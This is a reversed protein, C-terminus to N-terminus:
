PSVQDTDRALLISNILNNRLSPTAEEVFRATQAPTQRWLAGRIVLVGLAGAWLTLCSLGLAWRLATPPQDSWYGGALTTLVLSAMVVAFVGAGFTMMRITHRRIHITQLRRIVENVGYYGPLTTM